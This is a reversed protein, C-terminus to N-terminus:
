EAKRKLPDNAATPLGRSCYDEPLVGHQYLSCVMLPTGAEKNPRVFRCNVCEIVIKGKFIDKM